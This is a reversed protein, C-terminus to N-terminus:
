SDRKSFTLSKNVDKNLAALSIWLTKKFAKFLKIINSTRCILSIVANTPPLDVQKYKDYTDLFKVHLRTLIVAYNRAVIKYFQEAKKPPLKFMRKGTASLNISVPITTVLKSILVVASNHFCSIIKKSFYESIKIERNSM